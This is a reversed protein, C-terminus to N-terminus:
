ERFSTKKRNDSSPTIRTKSSNRTQITKRKKNSMNELIEQLESEDIEEPVNAM